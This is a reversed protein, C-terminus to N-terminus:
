PITFTVDFALQPGEPLTIPRITVIFDGSEPLTVSVRNEIQSNVGTVPLLDGRTNGISIGLPEGHSVSEVTIVQGSRATLIYSKPVGQNIIGSRSASVAGPQFYIREPPGQEPPPPTTGSSGDPILLTQGAYILTGKIGNATAIDQWPLGFRQDISSLTDGWAVTYYPAWYIGTAHSIPGRDYVGNAPPTISGGRDCNAPITLSMGDQIFNPDKGITDRNIDYIVKWTTCYRYAIKGLTEGPQVIHTIYNSQANAASSTLGLGAVMIALAFIVILLKRYM